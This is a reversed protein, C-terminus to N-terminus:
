NAQELYIGSLSVIMLSLLCIQLTVNFRILHKESDEDHSGM